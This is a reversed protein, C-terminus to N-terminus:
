VVVSPPTPVSLLTLLNWPHPPHSGTESTERRLETFLYLGTLNRPASPHFLPLQPRPPFASGSRESEGEEAWELFGSRGTLGNLRLDLWKRCSGKGSLKLGPEPGDGGLEGSSPNGEGAGQNPGQVLPM